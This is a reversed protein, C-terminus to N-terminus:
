ARHRYTGYITMGGSTFSVQQDVWEPPVSKKQTGQAASCATSLLLVAGLSAILLKGM